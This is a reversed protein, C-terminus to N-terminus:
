NLCSRRGELSIQLTGKLNIRLLLYTIMMLISKPVTEAMISIKIKQLIPHVLILFHMAPTLRSWSQLQLADNLNVSITLHYFIRYSWLSRLVCVYIFMVGIM